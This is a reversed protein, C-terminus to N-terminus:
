AVYNLAHGDSRYQGAAGAPQGAAYAGEATKSPTAAPYRSWEADGWARQGWAGRGQGNLQASFSDNGLSVAIQDTRLGQDELAQKLQPLGAEIAEKVRQSQTVLHATLAGRELTVRLNLPGLYDPKLQIRIEGGERTGQRNTRAVIQKIIEAPDPRATEATVKSTGGQVTRGDAAGAGQVTTGDPRGATSQGQALGSPADTRDTQVTQATGAQGEKAGKSSGAPQDGAATQAKSPDHLPNGGPGDAAAKVRGDTGGTQPQTLGEQAADATETERNQARGAKIARGNGEGGIM